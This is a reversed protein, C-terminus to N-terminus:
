RDQRADGSGYFCPCIPFNSLTTVAEGAMNGLMAALQQQRESTLLSQLQLMREGWTCAETADETM